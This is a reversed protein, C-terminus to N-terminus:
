NIEISNILKFYFIIILLIKNYYIKINDMILILRSDLYPNYFSLIKEEIFINFLDM